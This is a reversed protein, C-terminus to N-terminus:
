KKGALMSQLLMYNLPMAGLGSWLNASSQGGAVTNAGATAGSGSGIKVLDLLKSYDTAGTKSAMTFLDTLNGYKRQYQKDYEDAMIGRGGKDLLNLGASSNYMGRAALNQNTNKTMEDMKYTYAPDTTDFKFNKGLAELEQTFRSAGGTPDSAQLGPIAGVGMNYFPEQYKMAKDLADQIANNGMVGGAVAGGAGILSQLWGPLTSATGSGTGLLNSLWDGIGGTETKGGNGVDAGADTGAKIADLVAQTGTAAGGLGGLGGLMELIGPTTNGVGSGFLGGLAGAATGAEGIGSGFFGPAVGGGPTLSSGAMAPFETAIQTPTLGPLLGTEGTIGSPVYGSTSTVAPETAMPTTNSYGAVDGGLPMSELMGPAIGGLTGLGGTTNGVGTGFLGGLGSTNSLTQSGGFMGGGQLPQGFMTPSSALTGAEAGVAAGGAVSDLLPEFGGAGYLAGVPALVGSIGKIAPLVSQSWAGENKQWKRALYKETYAQKGEPTNVDATDGLDGLIKFAKGKNGVPGTYVDIFTQIPDDGSLDKGAGYLGAKGMFAPLKDIGADTFRKAEEATWGLQEPTKDWKAMWESIPRADPMLPAPLDQGGGSVRPDTHMGTPATPEQEPGSVWRLGDDGQIWPM